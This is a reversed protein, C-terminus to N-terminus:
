YTWIEFRLYTYYGDLWSCLTIAFGLSTHLQCVFEDFIIKLPPCVTYTIRM